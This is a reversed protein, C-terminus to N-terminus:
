FICIPIHTWSSPSWSRHGSSILRVPRLRPSQPSKLSLISAISYLSLAELSWIGHTYILKEQLMRAIVSHVKGLLYRLRRCPANSKHKHLTLWTISCLLTNHDDSLGTAGEIGVSSGIIICLIASKFCSFIPVPWPVPYFHFDTLCISLFIWFSALKWSDSVPAGLKYGVHRVCITLPISLWSVCFM